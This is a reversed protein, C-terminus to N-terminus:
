DTVITTFYDTLAEQDASHKGVFVGYTAAEIKWSQTEVDFFAIEQIPVEFDVVKIQNPLIKVKKFAKLQKKPRYNKSNPYSIYLQVVEEGEREGTNQVEVSVRLTDNLTYSKNPSHHILNQYYFTTYSLGWGFPYAPKINNKELFTYGHFYSYLIEDDFNEFRPLDTENKPISFTLKASPNAEGFIIETLANGGEMGNYFPMLLSSVKPEWDSTIVASGSFVCFVINPNVEHVANIMEIDIDPIHLSNRDGSSLMGIKALFPRQHPQAKQGKLHVFEGEEKYTYGGFILVVDAQSAANQWARQNSTSAYIIEAKDKVYNKIGEYPSVIYKPKVASSAKDGDNPLKALRGLVAIKKIKQLQLPLLASDNKLLVTGKVAAEKAIQIHQLTAIDKKSYSRTDKKNAWLLRQTFVPLLLNDLEQETILGKDLNQKIKKYSYYQAFPMEINMGAQVGKQTNKLGWFWDSSVFGKFGWQQKLVVQLLYSHHACYDGNVQNYATMFSVAGNDVCKKFHPLYVEHLTREDIIMNGKFRNNEMNNAAFHKVCAIVHHSQIGKLLAVGMEGLLHADEGYTEQARGWAPHRLQNICVAGLYNVGVARAEIGMAEGIRYELDIDWTCGRAMTCPFDTSEAVGVGRPGDSFFLSFPVNSKKSGMLVPTPRGKFVINLASRWFGKGSLENIKQRLSLQQLLGKAKSEYLAYLEDNKNQTNLQPFSNGNLDFFFLFLCIIWKKKFLM